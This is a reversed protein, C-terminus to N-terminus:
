NGGLPAAMAAAPTEYCTFVRTLDTVELVRVVRRNVGALRLEGDHARLRKLAGIIVGLGTSDVFEVATLDLVIHRAGAGVAAVVRSRLDPATALDLDGSAAIVTWDM